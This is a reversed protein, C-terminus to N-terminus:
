YLKIVNTSSHLSPKAAVINDFATNAEYVTSFELVVQHLGCDVRSSIVLLKYSM